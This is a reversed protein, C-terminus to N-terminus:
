EESEEPENSDKQDQGVKGSVGSMGPIFEEIPHIDPQPKSPFNTPLMDKHVAYTAVLGLLKGKGVDYFEMVHHNKIVGIYKHYIFPYREKHYRLIFEEPKIVTWNSPVYSSDNQTMSAETNNTSSDNINQSEVVRESHISDNQNKHDNNECTVLGMLLCVGMAGRYKPSMIM